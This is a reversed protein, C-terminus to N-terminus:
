PDTSLFARRARIRWSPAWGRSHLDSRCIAASESTPASQGRRPEPVKGCGSAGAAGPGGCLREDRRFPRRRHWRLRVAIFREDPGDEPRVTPPACDLAHLCPRSRGRLASHSLTPHQRLQPPVHVPIPRLAQSPVWGRKALSLASSRLAAARVLSWSQDVM